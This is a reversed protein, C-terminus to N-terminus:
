GEIIHVINERGDKFRRVLGREELATLLLSVKSQSMDLDSYLDKQSCSGGKNRIVELVEEEESTVGVFKIRGLRRIRDIIRPSLYGLVLGIVVCAMAVALLQVDSVGTIISPSEQMQYRVIFVREQGPQIEDTFWVFALSQGDTYNTLASPFIPAVSEQSLTARIPLLTTLTFNRYVSLPRVYFISDIYEVDGLSSSGVGTQLDYAVVRFLVHVNGSAPIGSELHLLVTSYRELLVIEAVVPLGDIEASMLDVATSEIRFSLETLTQIGINICTASFTVESTGNYDLHIRINVPDLLIEQTQLASVARPSLISLSLITLVILIFVSQMLHKKNSVVGFERWDNMM